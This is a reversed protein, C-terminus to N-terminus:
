LSSPLVKPTKCDHRVPKTSQEWVTTGTDPASLNYCSRVEEWRGYGSWLSEQRPWTGQEPQPAQARPSTRRGSELATNSGGTTLSLGAQQLFPRRMSRLYGMGASGGYVLCSGAEATPRLPVLAWVANTPDPGPQFFWRATPPGLRLSVFSEKEKKRQATLLWKTRFRKTTYGFSVPVPVERLTRSSDPVVPSVM